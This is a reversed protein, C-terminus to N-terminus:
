ALSRGDNSQNMRGNEGRSGGDERFYVSGGAGPDLGRM